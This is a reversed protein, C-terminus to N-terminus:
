MIEGGFHSKVIEVVGEWDLTNFDKDYLLCINLLQQLLTVHEQKYGKETYVRYGLESTRYPSHTDRLIFGLDCTHQCPRFPDKYYQYFDKTTFWEYPRGHNPCVSQMDNVYPGLAYLYNRLTLKLQVGFRYIKLEYTYPVTEKYHVYDEAKVGGYDPDGEM